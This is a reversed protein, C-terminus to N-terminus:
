TSFLCTDFWGVPGGVLLFVNSGSVNWKSLVYDTGVLVYFTGVLLSLFIMKQHAMLSFLTAFVCFSRQFLLGLISTSGM